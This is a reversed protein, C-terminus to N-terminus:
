AVIMCYIIDLFWFMSCIQQAPIYECHSQINSRSSDRWPLMSWSNSCYAQKSPTRCNWERSWTGFSGWHINQLCAYTTSYWHYSRTHIHHFATRVHSSWPFWWCHIHRQWLNESHAQLSWHRISVGGQIHVEREMKSKKRSRCSLLLTM